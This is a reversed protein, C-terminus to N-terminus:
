TVCSCLCIYNREGELVLCWEKSNEVLAFFSDIAIDKFQESRQEQHCKDTDEREGDKQDKEAAVIQLQSLIASFRNTHLNSM